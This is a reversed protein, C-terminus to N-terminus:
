EVLRWIVVADVLGGYGVEATVTQVRESEDFVEIEVLEPAGGSFVQPNHSQYSGDPNLGPRLPYFTWSLDPGSEMWGVNVVGTRGRAIRKKAEAGYGWGLEIPGIAYRPIRMDTVFSRGEGRNRLELCLLRAFDRPKRIVAKPEFPPSTPAPHAAHWAAIGTVAWLVLAALGLVIATVGLVAEAWEWLVATTTWAGLAIAAMAFTPAVKWGRWKGM